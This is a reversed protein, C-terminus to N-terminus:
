KLEEAPVESDLLCLAVDLDDHVPPLAEPPLTELWTHDLLTVPIAVPIDLLTETGQAAGENM